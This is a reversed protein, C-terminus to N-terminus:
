IYLIYHFNHSLVGRPFCPLVKWLFWFSFFCIITLIQFFYLALLSSTIWSFSFFQSLSCRGVMWDRIAHYLQWVQLWSIPKARTAPDEKSELHIMFVYGLTWLLVYQFPVWSLCAFLSLVSGVYQPDRIVWGPSMRGLAYV